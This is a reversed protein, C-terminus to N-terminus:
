LLVLLLRIWIAQLWWDLPKLAVINRGASRVQIYYTVNSAFNQTSVVTYKEKVWRM